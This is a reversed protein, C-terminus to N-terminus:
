KQQSQSFDSPNLGLDAVTQQDLQGNAQIQKSQQFQKVADKTRRGWRGDATGANFGDKDLAQQVQKVESRSLSNPSIPQNNEASQQSQQTKQTNQQAQNYNQDQQAQKNSKNQPQQMQTGQQQQGHSSAAFAPTAFVATTLMAIAFKKM